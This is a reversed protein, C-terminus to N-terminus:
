GLVVVAISEDTHRELRCVEAQAFLSGQDKAQRIEVLNSCSALFSSVCRTPPILGGWCAQEITTSWCLVFEAHVNRGGEKM